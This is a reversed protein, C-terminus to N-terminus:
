ELMNYGKKLKEGEVKSQLALLVLKVENRRPNEILIHVAHDAISYYNM